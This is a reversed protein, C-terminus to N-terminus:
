TTLLTGNRIKINLPKKHTLQHCNNQTIPFQGNCHLYKTNILDTHWPLKNAFKYHVCFNLAAVECYTTHQVNYQLICKLLPGVIQWEGAIVNTNYARRNYEFHHVNFHLCTYLAQALDSNSRTTAVDQAIYLKNHRIRSFPHQYFFVHQPNVIVVKDKAVAYGKLYNYIVHYASQYVNSGFVSETHIFQINATSRKVIDNEPLDRYFLKTNFQFYNNTLLFNNAQEINTIFGLVFARPAVPQTHHSDFIIFNIVYFSFLIAISIFVIRTRINLKM